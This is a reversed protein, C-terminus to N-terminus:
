AYAPVRFEFIVNAAAEEAAGLEDYIIPVRWSNPSIYAWQAETGLMGACLADDRKRNDYLELSARFDTAQWPHEKDWTMCYREPDSYYDGPAM